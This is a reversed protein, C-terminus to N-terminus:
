DPRYPVHCAGDGHALGRQRGCAIRECLGDFVERQGVMVFREVVDVGEEVM